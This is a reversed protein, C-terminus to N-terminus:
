PCHYYDTNNPSDSPSGQGSLLFNRTDFVSIKRDIISNNKHLDNDAWTSYSQKCVCMCLCMSM